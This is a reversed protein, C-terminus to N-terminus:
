AASVARIFAPYTALGKDIRVIPMRYEASGLWYLDGVDAGLPYGRLMLVSDPTVYFASDGYSGGLQYLGLFRDSGLTIGTGARVAIVHNKAWPMVQYERLESTLQVAGLGVRGEDTEAYSGLYPHILGGVLSFIRGDETSISYRAQQNWSFRWGGQLTGIAGRLPLVDRFADDPIETLNDRHSWSYRAFIWTRYTYPYSVSLSGGYRQEWYRQTNVWNTSGDELTPEDPDPQFIWTPTSATRSISASYVPIWRNLTFGAGVSTFDADTRYSGALSWAYHRLPDVSGTSASMVLSTPLFKLTQAPFPSTQVFPVWYRPLLTGLPTYRKPEVRFDYDTEDGHADSVNSQDFSDIGGASQPFAESPLPAMTYPDYPGGLRRRRRNGEASPWDVPEPPTAAVRDPLPATLQGISDGHRISRPLSGRYLWNIREIDGIMVRWGRNGYEQWALKEGSPHPTPAVAGTLSNTVQWLDETQVDIAFINPVGTRDSAFYLLSGDASWRPDREIASDMTLRRRPTGDADYLWLDRRGDQWVSVAIARGDPSFRPTAFQTHHTGEAIVVQRKDVTMIELNNQQAKNTVVLLRTGDPSFDPDRARAGGTLASPRESGLTHMYIDSWTNFRNVVHLGAYVFAKSDNRWTFSKAGRDQLILEAEAGDGDSMWIASGTRMDLCSWVLKDGDPSFSPATCTAQSDSLLRGTTLEGDQEIRRVQEAYKVQLHRKWDQHLGLLGKGIIAKGPLVYPVSSGYTHIWHTWVDQGYRDAIFQMFDQGFLYRLNGAPLDAQFGDLNGIPPIADELVAARKIMDVQPTRGRGGRTHRTEQFTALGEVMWSPSLRNTSSIRGVAWRAARAVGHNTDIHLTHTFEHTQIGTLWDEYLGLTSNEQPGTVFITITNYPVSQAFGNAVDTHDILVVHTRARPKWKLEGVMTDYIGEVKSSFEDALQEEGQHFHVRFHETTITRWTLDPDYTAAKASVTGMTLLLIATRRNMGM